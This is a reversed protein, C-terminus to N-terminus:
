FQQLMHGDRPKASLDMIREELSKIIVQKSKVIMKEDKWHGKLKKLVVRFKKEVKISQGIDNCMM